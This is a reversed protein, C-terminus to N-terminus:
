GSSRISLVDGDEVVYDKGKLSFRGAEQVKAEGGLALLDECKMHEARIFGKALDTHIARAAQVATSGKRIAWARVEDKGVTYFSMLGVADYLTRTLKDLGPEDIGLGSLFERREAPSEIAAIEGELKADFFALRMRGEFKAGIERRLGEADAGQTLNVVGAVPLGTLFQAGSLIDREADSVEISSFPRGAEFAADLKEVLRMEREKEPARSRRMEDALREKRRDIHLLDAFLLESFFADMDRLPDVSGSPHPVSPDEFARVACCIGDFARVDDLWPSRGKASEVDPLLAVDLRAYTTKEPKYLASLKDVRPDIVEFVGPVGKPPVQRVEAGTMLRFLTKKGAGQLGLLAIKM